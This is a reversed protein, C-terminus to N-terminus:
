IIIIDDAIYLISDQMAYLFVKDRKGIYYIGGSNVLGMEIFFWNRLLWFHLGVGSMKYHPRDLESKKDTVKGTVFIRYM